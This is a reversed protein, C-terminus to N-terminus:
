KGGGGGGVGGGRGAVRGGVGGVRGSDAGDAEGERREGKTRKEPLLTLISKHRAEASEHPYTSNYCM